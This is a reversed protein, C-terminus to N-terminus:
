ILNPVLLDFIALLFILFIGWFPVPFIFHVASALAMNIESNTIVCHRHPSHLRIYTITTLQLTTVLSCPCGQAM